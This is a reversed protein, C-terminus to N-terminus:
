QHHGRWGEIDKACQRAMVLKGRASSNPSVYQVIQLDEINRWLWM